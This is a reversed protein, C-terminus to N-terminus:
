FQYQATLSMIRPAGEYANGATWYAKNTVNSENFRFTLLKDHIHATYRLAMDEVTHGPMRETNPQDLWFGSMSQFGGGVTLDRLLAPLTYEAYVKGGVNPANEARAGVMDPTAPDSSVKDDLLNLGAVVLLNPLVNGSATLEVGKSITRGSQMYTETETSGSGNTQIYSNANNIHYTEATLLVGAGVSAKIGAEYQTTDYPPLVAGANTFPPNNTTSVVSGPQLSQQYSAYTTIRSVPKYILSVTPTLKGTDYSSKPNITAGHSSSFNHAKDIIYNGGAMLILHKNFTIVDGLLYNEVLSKLGIYTAAATSTLAPEAFTVEHYLNQTSEPTWNGNPNALATSPGFPGDYDYDGTFGTTIKHRIGFTSFDADLFAFAAHTVWVVGQQGPAQVDTTMDGQNDSVDLAVELGTFEKEDTYNYATRVTFTKNPKWTMKGGATDTQDAFQAWSPSFAKEPNPLKLALPFSPIFIPAKTGYVHYNSHAYNLQAFLDPRVHIDLVPTILDRKISQEEISTPGNQFVANLRYAYRGNQDLPGSFDGHVYGNDGDNDGVTISYYPHITPRKLVQNFNGGISGMGYLFGDAGALLEIRDKDELVNFLLGGAKQMGEYTAGAGNTYPAINFGRVYAWPHGDFNQLELANTVQPIVMNIQEPQFAQLNDILTSPVVTLSYPLDLITTDPWPGVQIAPNANPISDLRDRVTVSTSARGIKLQVDYSLTQGEALGIIGSTAQGFGPASVAIQYHGAPLNGVAYSGAEGTKTNATRGTDTNTVQVQAGAIMRGHQDKAVGTIQATQSRAPLVALFMAAIAFIQFIRRRSGPLVRMTQTVASITCHM